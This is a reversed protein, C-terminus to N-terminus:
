LFGRKAWPEMFGAAAASVCGSQDRVIIGIVNNEATKDMLSCGLSSDMLCDTEYQDIMFFQRPLFVVDSFVNLLIGMIYALTSDVM